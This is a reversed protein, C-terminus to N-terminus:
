KQIEKGLLKEERWASKRLFPILLLIAKCVNDAIMCYWVERLGLGWVQVCFFTLLIRVGWMGITEVVFAYRTRGLGYFVGELVVMLGFFPESLAVLQLMEGGLRVVEEVPSFVRMLPNAGLFLAFGSICMLVLTLGVSLKAVTKLKRLDREGRANGILASTATRLGYGPVYFITEATVAISHAAFVTTGMGSVLSAFVVYGFCSVLSTGLVPAGVAFCERLLGKEVSFERWRFSFMGKKWFLVFMLIGSLTYSIASAIAAGAVGLGAGYILLSNLIINLGNAAVSILMPTRTDQIARLAAGLITSAARFIMPLSVIFYYRSAEEQIAPEAGMWAPVFPSIGVSAAGLVVGSLVSLFLAQQALRKVQKRDGAGAAKSILILVATGIAGPISNFLWTITTTISVSATAQEGLQGVMATDVYQLLTALVEEVITPISLVVLTKLLGGSYTNKWHLRSLSKM